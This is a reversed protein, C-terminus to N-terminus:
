CSKSTSLCKALETNTKFALCMDSTLMMEYTSSSSNGVDSRIWQKKGNSLTIPM